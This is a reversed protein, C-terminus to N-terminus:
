EKYMSQFHKSSEPFKAIAKDILHMISNAKRQAKISSLIVVEYVDINAVGSEALPIGKKLVSQIDRNCYDIQIELNRYSPNEGHVSDFQNLIDYALKVEEFEILLLIIKELIALKGSSHKVAELLTKVGKDREKNKLFYRSCIVLSAAINTKICPSQVELKSFFEAYKVLDEYQQNAISLRILEPLNAPNIPYHNLMKITHTYADKWKKLKSYEEALTKLSLYHSENEQLAMEFLKIAEQTNEEALFIKGELYYVEDLHNNGQKLPEIIKRATEFENLYILEKTKHYANLFPSSTIKRELIKLFSESISKSTFPEAIYDDAETDLILSSSAISNPGSILTFIARQRNPFIAMHTSLLDIGEENGVQYDAFVIDIKLDNIIEVADSNNDAIFIHQVKVGFETFIKKLTTRTTKKEDVVLVKKDALFKKIAEVKKPKMDEFIM